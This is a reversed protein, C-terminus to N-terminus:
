FLSKEPVEGRRMALAGGQETGHHPRYGCRWAVTLPSFRAPWSRECRRPGTSLRPRSRAPPRESMATEYTHRVGVHHAPRNFLEEAQFPKSVFDDVGAAIAEDRSQTFAFRALREEFKGIRATKFFFEKCLCCM